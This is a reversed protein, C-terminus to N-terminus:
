LLPLPIHLFPHKCIHKRKTRLPYWHRTIIKKAKVIVVSACRITSIITSTTTHSQSSRLKAFPYFIQQKKAAYKFSTARYQVSSPVLIEENCREGPAFFIQQNKSITNLFYVTRILKITDHGDYTKGNSLSEM